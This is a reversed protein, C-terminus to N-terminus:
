NIELVKELYDFAENREEELISDVHSFDINFIDKNNLRKGFRDALEFKNLLTELRSIMSAKTGQRNYVVFPRNFLISFITGHFSDTFIIEAFNFYDLYEAPGEIFRQKDNIDALNVIELDNDEAVKKIRQNWKDLRDGIIYTLLYKKSPKKSSKNAIKMWEEKTILMTPDVLVEADKGTLKKIINAGAEERVSLYNFDNLWQKYIKKHSNPIDAVGFSPSFAVKKDKSTFDLFEFSPYKNYYPNWVQDSGTVFYDFKNNLENTVIYEEETLYKKSFEKFKLTKESIQKKYRYNWIKNKIRKTLVKYIDSLDKNKIKKIKNLFGNQDNNANNKKIITEVEFNLSKLIQEVAYNQLRNGYNFYGNLTIIGIKKKEKM